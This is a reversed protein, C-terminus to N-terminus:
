ARGQKVEVDVGLPSSELRSRRNAMMLGKLAPATGTERWLM